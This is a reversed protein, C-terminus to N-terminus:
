RPSATTVKWERMTEGEFFFRGKFYPGSKKNLLLPLWHRDDQWMRDYPIDEWASWFPIAEETTKLEGEIGDARFVVCDIRMGDAFRFYLEGARRVGVPRVGIEEEMERIAARRPTEGPDIKGGPGNVKGAGFGRRKEILLIRGPQVAFCLVCRLHM